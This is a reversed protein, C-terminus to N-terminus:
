VYIKDAIIYHKVNLLYVDDFCASNYLYQRILSQVISDRKSSNLKIWIRLAFVISCDTRTYTNYFGAM